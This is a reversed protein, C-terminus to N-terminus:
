NDGINEGRKLIAHATFYAVSPSGILIILLAILSKLFYVKSLMLSILILIGAATDGASLYHIKKLIKKTKFALFNNLIMIIIGLHILILQIVSM